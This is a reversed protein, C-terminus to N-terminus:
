GFKSLPGDLAGFENPLGGPAGTKPPPTGTSATTQQQALAARNIETLMTMGLNVVARNPIMNSTWHTYTVSFDTIFGYFQISTMGGFYVTCPTQVMPSRPVESLRIQTDDPIIALMREFQRIDVYVGYEAAPTGVYSSDWTEYTRDYLLSWQVTGFGAILNTGTDNAVGGPPPLAASNDITWGATIDTPNYLFRVGNGGSSLAVQPDPDIFGRQLKGGGMIQGKSNPMVLNLIRPDFSPQYRIGAIGDRGRAKKAQQANKAPVNPGPM